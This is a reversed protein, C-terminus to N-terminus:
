DGRPYPYVLAPGRAARMVKTSTSGLRLRDVMGLGRSGVAVLASDDAGDAGDAAELVAVAADGAVMRTAPRYGLVGELDAARRELDEGARRLMEQSAELDPPYAHVLVAEIGFLGALNGAFHTAMKADESYDDGVVLSTPPWAATGRLVLVPVRAHHVVEESTSGMLLRQVPGAGRSGVVLLGAGLEESLSIVEDSTRGEVLHAGAVTGGLGEVKRVAADLIERGQEKLGERIFVDAYASPVDHWVHVVHLESGSRSSLDVAAETARAADESGDTALLIKTPFADMERSRERKRNEQERCADRGARRRGFVVL